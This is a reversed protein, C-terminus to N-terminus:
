RSIRTHPLVTRGKQQRDAMNEAHTGLFLHNPNVCSPNDCRHCVCLEDPIPGFALMWSIRHAGVITRRGQPHDLPRVGLFGYGDTNRSGIWPWCGDSGASLDVKPWFRQAVTKRTSCTPSGCAKVRSSHIHCLGNRRCPKICGPVSCQTGPGTKPQRSGLPDGYKLWRQYHAGCLGRCRAGGGCGEVSCKRDNM